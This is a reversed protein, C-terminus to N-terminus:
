EGSREGTNLIAEIKVENNVRMESQNLFCTQVQIEAEGRRGGQSALCRYVGSDEFGVKISALQFNQHQISM